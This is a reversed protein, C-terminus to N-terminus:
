LPLDPNGAFHKLIVIPDCGSPNAIEVGARAAKETVFYEDNTLAGYRILAPAELSRGGFTGTGQLCILGYAASDRITVTRGPLITLRKASM